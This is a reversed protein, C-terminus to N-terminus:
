SGGAGVTVDWSIGLTDGNNVVLASLSQAALIQGTPLAVGDCLHGNASDNFACEVDMLYATQLTITQPAAGAYTANTTTAGQNNFSFPTATNSITTTVGGNTGAGATGVAADVLRSAMIGTDENTSTETAMTISDDITVSTTNAIAIINFNLGTCDTDAGDQSNVEFLDEAVCRDGIDTVFNDTQGYHKINGDADKLVYELHGSIAGNSVMTPTASATIMTSASIGSAGIGIAAVAIIAFVAITNKM